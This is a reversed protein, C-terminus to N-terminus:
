ENMPVKAIDGDYDKISLYNGDSYISSAEEPTLEYAPKGIRWLRADSTLWNRAKRLRRNEKTLRSLHVFGYNARMINRKERYPIFYDRTIYGMTESERKGGPIATISPNYKYIRAHSFLGRNILLKMDDYVEIPKIFVTDTSSEIFKELISPLSNTFIEDSNKFLFIDIPDKDHEEKIKRLLCETLRCSNEKLRRRMRQGEIIPIDTTGTVIVAPHKEKYGMVINRTISDSNDMIIVVKDSWKIADEIAYRCIEGESWVNIGSVININNLFDRMSGVGKSSKKSM